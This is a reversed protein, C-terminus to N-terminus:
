IDFLVKDVDSLSLSLSLSVSFSTSKPFGNGYWAKSQIKSLPLTKCSGGQAGKM